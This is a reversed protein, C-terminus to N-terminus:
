RPARFPPRRSPYLEAPQCPPWLSWRRSAFYGIWPVRRRRHTERRPTAYLRLQNRTRKPTGDPWADKTPGPGPGPSVFWSVTGMAARRTAVNWTFRTWARQVGEIETAVWRARRM